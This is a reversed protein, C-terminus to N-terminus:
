PGNWRRNRGQVDVHTFSIYRGLGGPELGEAVEYTQAVSLGRVTIDAAMGMVHRSHTSGGVWRNHEPTRYGSTLHVPKGGAAERIAELMVILAPHVLVADSGDRCAFEILRFHDSLALAPGDDRLSYHKSGSQTHGRPIADAAM